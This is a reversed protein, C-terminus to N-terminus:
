FPAAETSMKDPARKQRAAMFDAKLDYGSLVQVAEGKTLKDRFVQGGPVNIFRLRCQPRGDLDLKTKMVFQLEKTTDLAGNGLGDAIASIDDGQFGCDLLTKITIERAKGEKLSGFWYVQHSDHDNDVYECLLIVQPLGAKTTTMGYDIVRGTYKGDTLEKM